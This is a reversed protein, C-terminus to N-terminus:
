YLCTLKYIKDILKDATLDWTFNQEVHNRANVSLNRNLNDDDTVIRIKSSLEDISNALFGTKGDIVTESIGGSAMAVVPTGCAMAEVPVLGFPENSTPIVVAKARAYYYYLQEESLRGLFKVNNSLGLQASLKILNSKEEGDGGIYLTINKLDKIAQLLLDIRKFKTLRATVFIFDEKPGSPHFKLTDVGPYIVSSDLGYVSKINKLTFCSNAIIHDSYNVLTKDIFKMVPNSAIALTKMPQNLGNIIDRNHIFASPEQCYWICPIKPLDRKLLFGWYNAPFVQPFIVDIHHAKAVERVNKMTRPFNFWYSITDPLPGGIFEFNIHPYDKIITEDGSQAIVIVDHGKKAMREGTELVFKGAGGPYTFHPHLYLIKM